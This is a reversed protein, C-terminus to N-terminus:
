LSSIFELILNVMQGDYTPGEMQFHSVGEILHTQNRGAAAKLKNELQKVSTFGDRTGMVFLKPKSSQLIAKHHRGFLISATLGFPYGLSVYAIVEEVRDVASGAIAAGASSGVLVIRHAPLNQCAWKCVSVVDDVEAFGTLSARGTSKGVDRMDFTVATLGRDALGRAIGKMLGQCGGLVSYPHVLVVVLKGNPHESVGPAAPKYIRADLTIGGNSEITCTERSSSM